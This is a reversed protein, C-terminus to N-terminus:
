DLPAVELHRFEAKEGTCEWFGIAGERFSQDPDHWALEDILPEGLSNDGNREQLSLSVGFDKVKLRHQYWKNEVPSRGGSLDDRHWGCHKPSFVHFWGVKDSEPDNPLGVQIMYYEQPSKWRVIIGATRHVLRVDVSLVFDTFDSRHTVLQSLHVPAFRLIGEQVTIPPPHTRWAESLESGAFEEVFRNPPTAM